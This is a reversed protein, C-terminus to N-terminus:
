GGKGNTALPKTSDSTGSGATDVAGSDIKFRAAETRTAPDVAVLSKAPDDVIWIFGGIWTLTSPATAGLEVRRSSAFANERYELHGIEVSWVHGDIVVRTVAAGRASGAQLKPGPARVNPDFRVEVGGPTFMSATSTASPPTATTSPVAPGTTSGHADSAGAGANNGHAFWGIAAGAGALLVATAVFTPLSRGRARSPARETPTTTDPAGATGAALPPAVASGQRAVIAVTVDDGGAEASAALWDDLRAGVHELGHAQVQDRLDGVAITRWDTNAFSNGYGDTSLLVLDPCAPGELVAFRFDSEAGALCLSTTQGAVLRADDAIP